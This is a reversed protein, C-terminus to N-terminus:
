KIKLIIEAQEILASLENEEQEVNTLTMTKKEELENTLDVNNERLQQVEKELKDKQFNAELLDSCVQEYDEVRKRTQSEALKYRLENLEEQM